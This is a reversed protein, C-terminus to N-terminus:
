PGGVWPDGSFSFITTSYLFQMNGAPSQLEDAACVHAVSGAAYGQNTFVPDNPVFPFPNSVIKTGTPQITSATRAVVTWTQTTGTGSTKTVTMYVTNTGTGARISFQGTPLSVGPIVNVIITGDGTDTQVTALLEPPDASLCFLTPALLPIPNGFQDVGSSLWAARTVSYPSPPVKSTVQWTLIYSLFADPQDTTLPTYKIIALKSDALINNTLGFMVDVCATGTSGDANLASRSGAAYGPVDPGAGNNTSKDFNAGAGACALPGDCGVYAALSTQPNESTPQLRFTTNGFSNGAFALGNWASPTCAAAPGVTAAVTLTWPVGPRIGSVNAICVSGAPLPGGITSAPCAVVTGNQPRPNGLTVGVPRILIVSNVNSNGNTTNTYIANVDVTLGAQLTQPSVNLTFIKESAAIAPLAFAALVVATLVFFFKRMSNM